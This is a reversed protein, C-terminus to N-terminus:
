FMSTYKIIPLLAVNKPRTEDPTPAVTPSPNVTVSAADIAVSNGLVVNPTSWTGPLYGQNANGKYLGNDGGVVTATSITPLTHNHPANTHTHAVTTHDHQEYADAQTSGFVRGPDVAGSADFGRVFMGQLDPVNFTTLTGGFTNGIIDFLDYYPNPVGPSIEPANSYASGDCVVWGVPLNAPNVSTYWMICGVPVTAPADPINWDLGLPKTVDVTLVSGNTGRPLIAPTDPGAGVIIDGVGDIIAKPIGSSAVQDLLAATPALTTSGSGPINILQVLGKQSTSANLTNLGAPNIALNNAVLAQTEAATAFEVLGRQTDTANLNGLTGPTVALTYDALAQTEAVTAIEIIGAVTTTAYTARFGTPFFQWTTGDSIFKDGAVCTYPGGGGPPSYSGAQTVLMEAGTNTFSPSPLPNAATIGAINGASTASVVIGTAPNITGALFLDNLLSSLTNVQNQLLFGQNATLALNNAPTICDDRLQVAGANTTSALDIGIIPFATTGTILIPYQATLGQVVNAASSTAAVVRGFSDVTISAINYSGPVLVGGVPALSVSGSSTIGGAPSTVIGTGPSVLTVTGPPNPGAAANITGAAANILIGSGTIFQGQPGDISWTEPYYFPNNPIPNIPNINPSPNVAM